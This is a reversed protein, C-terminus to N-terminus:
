MQCPIALSAKLKKEAHKNSFGVAAKKMSTNHPVFGQTM